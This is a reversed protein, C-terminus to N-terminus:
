ADPEQLEIILTREDVGWQAGPCEARLWDWTALSLNNIGELEVRRLGPAAKFLARLDATHAADVEEPGEVPLDLTFSFEELAPFACPISDPTLRLSIVVLASGEGDTTRECALHANYTLDLRRLSSVAAGGLAPGLAPCSLGVSVLRAPGELDAFGYAGSLTNLYLHLHELALPLPGFPVHWDVLPLALATLASLAALPAVSSPTLSMGDSWIELEKLGTLPALKAIDESMDIEIDWMENSVDLNLGTLRSLRTLLSYHVPDRFPAGYPLLKRYFPGRLPVTFAVGEEQTTRADTRAHRDDENDDAKESHIAGAGGEACAQSLAPSLARRFPVFSSLNPTARV